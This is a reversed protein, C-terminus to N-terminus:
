FIKNPPEGKKKFDIKQPDGRIQKAKTSVWESIPLKKKWFPRTNWREKQIEIKLNNVLFLPANCLEM